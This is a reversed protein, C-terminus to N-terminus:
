EHYGLCDINDAGDRMKNGTWRDGATGALPAGRSQVSLEWCVQGSLTM